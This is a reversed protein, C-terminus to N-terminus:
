DAKLNERDNSRTNPKWLNIAPKANTKPGWGIEGWDLQLKESVHNDKWITVTQTETYPPQEISLRKVHLLVLLVLVIRTNIM